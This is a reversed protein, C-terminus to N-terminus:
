SGGAGPTSIEMIMKEIDKSFDQKSTARSGSPSVRHTIDLAKNGAPVCWRYVMADGITEISKVAQRPGLTVTEGSCSLGEAVLVTVPKLAESCAINSADAANTPDFEINKSNGCTLLGWGVPYYITFGEGQYSKTGIPPTITASPTATTVPLRSSLDTSNEAPVNQTQSNRVMFIIGGVVLAFIIFAAAGFVILRSQQDMRIM